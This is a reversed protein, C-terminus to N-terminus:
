RVAGLCDVREGGPRVFAIEVLVVQGALTRAQDGLFHGADCARAGVERAEVEGRHFRDGSRTLVALFVGGLRALGVEVEVFGTGFLWNGEDAREAFVVEGVFASGTGKGGYGARMKGPHGSVSPVDDEDGRCMEGGIVVEVGGRFLGVALDVEIVGRAAPEEAGGAVRAALPRDPRVQLVCM